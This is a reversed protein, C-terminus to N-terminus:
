VQIKLYAEMVSLKTPSPEDFFEFIGSIVRYVSTYTMQVFVPLRLLCESALLTNYMDGHHRGYKMGGPSTHLPCYHEYMEISRDQMFSQLKHKQLKNGLMIWFIHGNEECFLANQMIRFRKESSLLILFQRYISVIAKRRQSCYNSVDLQAALFAANIESTTFSSGVDMWCYKSIKGEIFNCRNTGKEWVIYAREQFEIDNVLLAGGEGCITNKTYHFSLCGFHGITGLYRGKFKSLLAQAADEVVLLDYQKAIEMIREMDCCQGAYHVVTICKTRSTIAHLVKEPDIQLNEDVDVFVPIGGRLVVANATSVFTYSPMIVEDGPRINCLIYAQELAATASSTLLVTKCKLMSSLMSQCKISYRGNTEIRELELIERINEAERGSFYPRNQTIPGSLDTWVHYVQQISELTCGIAEFFAIAAKNSVKTTVILSSLKRAIGWRVSRNILESAIGQRQFKTSVALLCIELRSGSRRIAILGSIENDQKSIFVEDAARKKLCNTTWMSQIRKFQHETVCPDNRLGSYKGSFTSLEIVDKGSIDDDCFTKICLHPNSKLCFDPLPRKFTMNTAVEYGPITQSQYHYKDVRNDLCWYSLQIDEECLTRVITSFKESGQLRVRATNIGLHESDFALKEIAGNQLAQIRM